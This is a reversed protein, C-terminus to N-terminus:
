MKERSEGKFDGELCHLALQRNINNIQKYKTINKRIRPKTEINNPPPPLTREQTSLFLYIALM